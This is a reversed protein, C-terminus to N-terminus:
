RHRPAFSPRPDPPRPAPLHPAFHRSEAGRHSAERDWHRRHEYGGFVYIDPAPVYTDVGVYGEGEVGVCGSLGVGALLSGAALMAAGIRTFKNIQM